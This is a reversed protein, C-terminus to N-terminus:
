GMVSRMLLIVLTLSVSNHLFHATMPAILSGRWERLLAFNFGLAILPPTLLPGYNHMFGFLVATVLAAIVAPLYGRLHRYLAGRFILEECVPAWLTALMLFLVLVLPSAGGLLEFMPNSPPPADEGMIQQSLAVLILTLLVAGLFIPIGALYGLLGAGIERLVGRGRHLGITGAFRQWGMGRVLPWFPVLLLCWQLIIAVFALWGAEPGFAMEALLMIIKLLLFAAVFLAFTELFVSGGPAPPIFAPRIKGTAILVIALIFLLFGLPIAIGIVLLLAFLGFAEASITRLAEREATGTPLTHTLAVDAYFDHRLRLGEATATDIVGAEVPSGEGGDRAFVYIREFADVDNWFAEAAEAEAETPPEASPDEELARVPLHALGAGPDEVEAVTVALYLKERDTRAYGELMAAPDPGTDMLDKLRITLRFTLDAELGVAGGAALTAAEAEPDAEEPLFNQSFAVAVFCIVGAIIAVWLTRRSGPDRLAPSVPDPRAIPQDPQTM